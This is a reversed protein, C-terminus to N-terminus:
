INYKKMDCWNLGTKCDVVLPVDLLLANEMEEKVIKAAATLDAPSVQLVLEDHVQLLLDANLGKIARAVNIMALKMIDAATGQMPSNKAIREGFQRIMRNPHKLEPIRRLRNLLTRVEGSEIALMVADDLYKKVGSYRQFYTEIYYKAEKRPIRLDRALGFETLGYMLGFNVAKARRRMESTVQELPVGFVESATRTHVDEGTRFSECLIPDKSYHALVRLEIQSYDASLLVWGNQSPTFVKRLRRGEEMRIPINQLNPETSSLRGTATVMQQFTTHLKGERLQGLLGKVYTSNLKVLHRFELIKEVIQHQDALEELTEADTSYGTKTKKVPPLGLHEFLVKGLQQPSNINFKMGATQFIENETSLIKKELETGIQELMQRDVQIGQSEMEALVISLPEEVDHLLSTLGLEQLKNSSDDFITYLLGAEKATSFFLEDAKGSLLEAASYSARSPDILYAALSLDYKLGRLCVGDNALATYLTKNDAIIKPVESSGLLEYLKGLVSKVTQDKLISFVHIKDCIGIESWVSQQVTKGELRYALTLETKDRLWRDIQEIWTNEDLMLESYDQDAPDRQIDQMKLVAAEKLKSNADTDENSVTQEFLKCITSLSYQKLISMTRNSDPQTWIFDKMTFDIPVDDIMTALKKSLLAQEPYEKLLAKLKNGSVDGANELVNELSGYSWLLKLATKEGVGPIGPINDSPDGMLGKLDIIQEPKLQYKQFLKELDYCEVASIGKITMEVKTQDSVLQFADKDGTIVITELGETEAEKTVTAILDDAEYGESELIPVSMEKLIEKLYAFQPKLTEPTEKRHAKYQDYMEIRKTAKTKDFAVVWYDPKKEKQIRLLMTMFGHVANTPLGDKSTLPPLAYFARNLLSNGDMIVLRAM